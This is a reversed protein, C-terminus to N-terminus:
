LDGEEEWHGGRERTPKRKACGDLNSRELPKMICRCGVWTAEPSLYIRRRHKGWGSVDIEQRGKWRRREVSDLWVRGRLGLTDVVISGNSSQRPRGAESMNWSCAM